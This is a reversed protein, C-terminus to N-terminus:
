YKNLQGLFKYYKITGSPENGHSCSRAVEGKRLWIFTAEGEWGIEKLNM